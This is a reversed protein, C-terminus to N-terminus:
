FYTLILHFNFLFMCTIIIQALRMGRAYNSVAIGVDVGVLTIIACIAAIVKIVTEIWGLTGYSETPTFYFDPREVQIRGGFASITKKSKAEVDDDYDGM